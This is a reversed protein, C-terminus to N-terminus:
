EEVINYKQIEYPESLSENDDEPDYSAYDNYENPNKDEQYRDEDYLNGYMNRRYGYEAKKPM